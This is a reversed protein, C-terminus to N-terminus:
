DSQIFTDASDPTKLRKPCAGGGGGGGCNQRNESARGGVCCVGVGRSRNNNECM